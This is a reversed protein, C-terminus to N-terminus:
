SRPRSVRPRYVKPQGESRYRGGRVGHDGHAEADEACQEIVPCQACYALAQQVPPKLFVGNESERPLFVDPDKGRCAARLVWERSPPKRM